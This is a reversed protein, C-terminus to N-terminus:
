RSAQSQSGIADGPDGGVLIFDGDLQTKERVPNPLQEQLEQLLYDRDIPKLDSM